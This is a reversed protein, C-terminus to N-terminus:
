FRTLRRRLEAAAICGLFGTVVAFASFFIIFFYTFIRSKQKVYMYACLVFNIKQSEPERSQTAAEQKYFNKSICM